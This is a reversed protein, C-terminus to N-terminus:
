YESEFHQLIFSDPTVKKEFDRTTDYVFAIGGTMGAVFNDCVEVLIVTIGGTM